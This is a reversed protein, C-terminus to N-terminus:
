PVLEFKLQNPSNAGITATLDSTDQVGYRDPIKQDAKPSKAPVDEPLLPQDPDVPITMSGQFTVQYEGPPIGDAVDYTGAEFTGDPKLNGISTPGGGVPVFM